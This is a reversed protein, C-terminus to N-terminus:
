NYTCCDHLTDDNLAQKCMPGRRVVILIKRQKTHRRQENIAKQTATAQNAKRKTKEAENKKIKPATQQKVLRRVIVALVCSEFINICFFLDHNM